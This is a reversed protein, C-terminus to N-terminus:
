DSVKFRPVVNRHITLMLGLPEGTDGHRKFGIWSRSTMHWIRAGIRKLWMRKSKIRSKITSEEKGGLGSSLHPDAEDRAM